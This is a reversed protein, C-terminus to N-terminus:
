KSTTSTISRVLTEWNTLVESNSRRLVMWGVSTLFATKREDEARRALGHSGGDIEIAIMETPNALDIKYCHPFGDSRRGTKVVFEPIWAPGLLGLLLRQAEPMPRGNGGRVKPQHGIRRLTGAMKARSEADAMPNHAKMRASANAADNKHACEKHFARGTARFRFLHHRNKLIVPRGCYTCPPTPM